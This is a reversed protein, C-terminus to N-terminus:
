FANDEASPVTAWAAVGGVVRLFKDNDSTSCTPVENITEKLAFTGSHTPFSYTYTTAGLGGTPIYKIGDYMYQCIRGQIDTYMGSVSLSLKESHSSDYITISDCDITNTIWTSSDNHNFVLANGATLYINANAFVDMEQHTSTPATGVGVLYAKDTNSTILLNSAALDYTTNSVKVQKINSM